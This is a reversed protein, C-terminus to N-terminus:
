PIYTVPAPSPYNLLLSALTCVALSAFAALLWYSRPRKHEGILVLFAAAAVSCVITLVALIIKLWGIGNGAAILFLVYLVVDIGVGIAMKQELQRFSQKKPSSTEAM